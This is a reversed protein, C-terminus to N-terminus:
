EKIIKESYITGDNMHVKLHYMGNNLETLDLKMNEKEQNTEILLTKGQLDVLTISTINKAEEVYITGNTPTPYFHYVQNIDKKKTALTSVSFPITVSNSDIPTCTTSSSSIFAKYNIQFSGSPKVGLNITDVFDDIATLLGSYYCGEIYITSGEDRLTYGLYNGQNPTSVNTILYISDTSTPNQPIIKFDKMYPCCQAFVKQFPITLLMFFTAFSIIHKKM